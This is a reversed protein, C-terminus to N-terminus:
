AGSLGASVAAGAVEAGAPLVVAPRRGNPRPAFFGAGAAFGVGAVLGAVVGVAAGTATAAEEAGAVTLPRSM